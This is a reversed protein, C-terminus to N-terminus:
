VSEADPRAGTAGRQAATKTEPTVPYLRQAGLSYEWQLHSRDRSTVVTTGTAWLARLDKRRSHVFYPSDRPIVTAVSHRHVHHHHCNLTISNALISWRGGCTSPWHVGSRDWELASCRRPQGTGVAALQLTWGAIPAAPTGPRGM